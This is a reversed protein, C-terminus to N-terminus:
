QFGGRKFFEQPPLNVAAYGKRARISLDRAKTKVEIKRFKGDMLTNDPQYGIVYYTSTDRAVMNMARAIDDIGRLMFGGTGSTLINPGDDGTDFSTNRAMSTSVVDPNPSRYNINGRGDITYITAGGRAAQAAVQQLTSRSEEVFFGETLFLVTKRGPFRALNSAVYQLGTVTHDAMVRAQRIYLKAKQQIINEVGNLGDTLSCAFADEQCAAEALRKTTELSGDAIRMADNETPVRPWERFPALIAQRNDFAPKVARVAALLESKDTTLRGRYMVGNVFVGGVDGEAMQKLIFLEAGRKVRMLSENALHEEDFVFVFVRRARDEPASSGTQAAVAKLGAQSAPDSSVMYFQQIKQLKGDEYLDLDEALLGPVFKENKDLVILDVEVLATTTKFMPQQSGQAPNQGHLPLARAPGLLFLAVAGCFVLRLSRSM